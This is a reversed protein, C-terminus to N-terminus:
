NILNRKKNRIDQLIEEISVPFNNHSDLGVHYMYPNDNFFNDKQHTHGYLNILHTYIDTDDFNTTYCPYHCLFFYQKKIKITKAECIEVVNPCEKYLEVKSNTDHNGRIIHIKGKLQKLFEIGREKDNLMVDGLLYVEDEEAVISNWNDVIAHDHEEISSFGRPQYLFEKDHGLHLDSTFYIAM